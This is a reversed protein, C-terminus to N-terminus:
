QQSRNFPPIADYFGDLGPRVPPRVIWRGDADKLIRLPQVKRPALDADTPVVPVSTAKHKRSRRWRVEVVSSEISEVAAKPALYLSLALLEPIM